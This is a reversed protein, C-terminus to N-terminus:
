RRNRFSKKINPVRPLLPTAIRGCSFGVMLLMTPSGEAVQRDKDPLNSDKIILGRAPLGCYVGWRRQQTRRAAPGGPLDHSEFGGRSGGSTAVLSVARM